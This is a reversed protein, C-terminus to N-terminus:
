ETWSMDSVYEETIDIEWVTLDVDTEEKWMEYAFTSKIFEIARDKTEALVFGQGEGFRINFTYEWLKM